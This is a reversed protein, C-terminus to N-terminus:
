DTIMPAIRKSSEQIQASASLNCGDAHTEHNSIKERVQGFSKVHTCIKDALM